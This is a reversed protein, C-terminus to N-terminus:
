TVYGGDGNWTVIKRSIGVRKPVCVGLEKIPLSENEYRNFLFYTSNTNYFTINHKVEVMNISM